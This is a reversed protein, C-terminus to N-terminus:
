HKLKRSDTPFHRNRNSIRASPPASLSLSAARVASSSLSGLFHSRGRTRPTGHRRGFSLSINCGDLLLGLNNFACFSNIAVAQCLRGLRWKVLGLSVALYYKTFTCHGTWRSDSIKISMDKRGSFQPQPQRLLLYPILGIIGAGNSAIFAPGASINQTREDIFLFCAYVMPWVGMLAFVTVLYPNIGELQLKIMKEIVTLTGPQDLPALLLTYAIFIAWLLWLFMKTKMM